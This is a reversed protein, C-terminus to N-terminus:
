IIFCRTRKSLITCSLLIVSKQKLASFTINSLTPNRKLKGTKQLYNLGIAWNSHCPHGYLQLHIDELQMTKKRDISHKNLRQSSSKIIKLNMYM